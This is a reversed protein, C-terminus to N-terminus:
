SLNVDHIRHDDGACALVGNVIVVNEVGVVV